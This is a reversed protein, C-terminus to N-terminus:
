VKMDHTSLLSWDQELVVSFAATWPCVCVCVGGDVCVSVYVFVGACDLGEAETLPCPGLWDFAVSSEVSALADKPRQEQDSCGHTSTRTMDSSVSSVASNSSRGNDM